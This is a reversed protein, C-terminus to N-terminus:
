YLIRIVLVRFCLHSVLLKRYNQRNINNEASYRDLSPLQSRCQIIDYISGSLASSENVAEGQKASKEIRDDTERERKLVASSMNGRVRLKGICSYKGVSVDCVCVSSNCPLLLSFREPYNFLERLLILTYIQECCLNKNIVSAVSSM